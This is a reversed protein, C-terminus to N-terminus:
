SAKICLCPCTQVNEFVSSQNESSVPTAQRYTSVNLTAPHCAPQTHIPSTPVWHSRPPVRHEVVPGLASWHSGMIPFGGVGRTAIALPADSYSAPSALTEFYSSKLLMKFLLNFGSNRPYLCGTIFRPEIKGPCGPHDSPGWCGVRLTLSAETKPDM